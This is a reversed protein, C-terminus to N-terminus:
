AGSHHQWLWLTGKTGLMQWSSKNPEQDPLTPQSVIDNASPQQLCPERHHSVGLSVMLIISIVVIINFSAVTRNFLHTAWKPKTSATCSIIVFVVAIVSIAVIITIFPKLAPAQLDCQCHWHHHHHHHISPTIIWPEHNMIWPWSEHNMITITIMM